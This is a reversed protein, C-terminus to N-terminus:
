EQPFELTPDKQTATASEKKPTNRRGKSARRTMLYTEGGTEADLHAARRVDFFINEKKYNYELFDFLPTTQLYYYDGSKQRL